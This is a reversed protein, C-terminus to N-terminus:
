CNEHQRDRKYRRLKAWGRYQQYVHPWARINQSRAREWHGYRKNFRFVKGDVDARYNNSLTWCFFIADSTIKYDMHRKIICNLNAGNKGDTKSRM